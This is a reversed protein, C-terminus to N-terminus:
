FSGTVVSSNPEGWRGTGMDEVAAMRKRAQAGNQQILSGENHISVMDMATGMSRAEVLHRRYWKGAKLLKSQGAEIDAM